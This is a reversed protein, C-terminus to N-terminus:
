LIFYLTVYWGDKLPQDVIEVYEKGVQRSLSDLAKMFTSREIGQPIAPGRKRGWQGNSTAIDLILSKAKQAKQYLRSPIGSYKDGLKPTAPASSTTM